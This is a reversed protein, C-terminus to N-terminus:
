QLIRKYQCSGNRYKFHNLKLIGSKCVFSKNSNMRFKYYLITCSKVAQILEEKSIPPFTLSFFRSQQISTTIPVEKDHFENCFCPVDLLSLILFHNLNGLHEVQYLITLQGGCLLIQYKQPSFRFHYIDENSQSNSM